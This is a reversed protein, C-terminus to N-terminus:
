PRPSRPTGAPTRAPRSLWSGRSRGSPSAEGRLARGFILM